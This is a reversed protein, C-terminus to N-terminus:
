RRSSSIRPLSNQNADKMPAQIIYQVLDLLLQRAFKLDEVNPVNVDINDLVRYLTEHLYTQDLSVNVGPM